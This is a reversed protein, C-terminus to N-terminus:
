VDIKVYGRKALAYLAEKKVEESAGYWYLWTLTQRSVNPHECADLQRLSDPKTNMVCFDIIRSCTFRNALIFYILEGGATDITPDKDTGSIKVYHKLLDEPCNKNYIVVIALSPKKTVAYRLIEPDVEPDYLVQSLVHHLTTNPSEEDEVLVNCNEEIKKWWEAYQDIIPKFNELTPVEDHIGLKKLNQRQLEPEAEIFVPRVTKDAEYFKGDITDYHNDVYWGYTKKAM